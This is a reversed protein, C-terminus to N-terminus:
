NNFLFHFIDGEQVIYDRGEQRMKGANKAYQEGGFEIYDNYSITEARIFGKEFDTHIKGAAQSANTNQKITWARTEKKGATFFTLLGLLNYGTKIVQDLSTDKLGLADLFENQEKKSEINSIESEISASVLIVERSKQNDLINILDNTFQNGNVVSNEDVNCIYFTPKLSLLNLEDVFYIFNSDIEDLNIEQNADIQTLLQNIIELKIKLEKDTSKIKKTYLEQQKLLIDLDSLLLESEIVKLDDVPNLRANVHTINEDEFCRLVHAIADVERIHGLFKNGLGEGENAGKVLGAIDVFEMYTPIVSLSENLSALDNLRHDPVAVRGVNPEITAFPYNAALANKSQTLANFITSKGINPLGIIGCKFGM